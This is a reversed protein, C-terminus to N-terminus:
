PGGRRQSQGSQRQQHPVGAAAGHGGGVGVGLPGHADANQEAHRADTGLCPIAGEAQVAARHQPERADIEFVLVGDQAAVGPLAGAAGGNVHVGGRRAAVVRDVGLGPLQDGIADHGREIRGGIRRDGHVGSGAIEAEAQLLKRQAAGQRQQLPIHRHLQQRGVDSEGSLGSFVIVRRQQHIRVPVQPSRPDIVGLSRIRNPHRPAAGGAPLRGLRHATAVQLVVKAGGQRFVPLVAQPHDPRGLAAGPPAQIPAIKGARTPRGDLRNGRAFAGVQEMRGRPVRAPPQVHHPLAEASASRLDKPLREVALGPGRLPADARPDAVRPHRGHRRIGLAVQPNGPVSIVPAIEVNEQAADAGVAFGPRDALDRVGGTEIGVNRQGAVAQVPHPEGPIHGLGVPALVPGALVEAGAAAVAEVARARHADGTQVAVAQQGRGVNHIGNGGLIVIIELHGTQHRIPLPAHPGHSPGQGTEPRAHLVVPAAAPQPLNQQGREVAVVPHGGHFQITCGAAIVHARCRHRIRGPAQPEGPRAITAHKSPAVRRTGAHAVRAEVRGAPGCGWPQRFEMLRRHLRRGHVGIFRAVYGGNASVPIVGAAFCEADQAAVQVAM